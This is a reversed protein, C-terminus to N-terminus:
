SKKREPRALSEDADRYLHTLCTILLFLTNNEPKHSLQWNKKFSYNIKNKEWELYANVEM